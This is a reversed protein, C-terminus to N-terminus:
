HLQVNRNQCLLYILNLLSDLRNSDVSIVCLILNNKKGAKKEFLVQSTFVHKKVDFCVCLYGITKKKLKWRNTSKDVSELVQQHLLVMRVSGLVKEFFNLFTAPGDIHSFNINLNLMDFQAQRFNYRIKLLLIQWQSM